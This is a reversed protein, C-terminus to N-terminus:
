VVFAPAMVIRERVSFTTSIVMGAEMSPNGTVQMASKANTDQLLKALTVGGRGGRGYITIEIM